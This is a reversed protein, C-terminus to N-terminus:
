KVIFLSWFIKINISIIKNKFNRKVGKVFKNKKENCVIRIKYNIYKIKYRYIYFYELRKWIIIENYLVRRINITKNIIIMLYKEYYM